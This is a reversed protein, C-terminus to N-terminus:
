QVNRRWKPLKTMCFYRLADPGHDRQKIPKEEGQLAAKADWIYSQLEAILGACREHIKLKGSYFLSAVVRIGDLVENDAPKVIYGRGRLETIFSAASPDAVIDCQLDPNDGMFTVMDDGYQSDTKQGEKEVRSDWRYERDVWITDGDDYIELFVCPNTTGYDLSITRTSLYELGKPRTENNYVNRATNFVTYILGEVVLRMGKIDRQYWISNVDYRSEIARLREQTININDYITCHMYNYGGPFNGSEEQAQYKDIYERYIPANPNDPNLDWFVKLRKAALQRNFAEKITNDHHLNIETAIWMGYSNGRIKKFSDEKAAGAFIIIKQKGETDPGKVFLAENDKYKGWHCQGRFIWELGFGNADGINLKANGVTSGTALHIRDPATKLEHAFAFVNDVTKGARVAGEAVNYASKACKRIYEKHKESFNFPITKKRTYRNAAM